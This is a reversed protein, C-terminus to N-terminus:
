SESVMYATIFTLVVTIAQAVAVPVDVGALGIAWVLIVTVAGALAGAGVKRTPTM